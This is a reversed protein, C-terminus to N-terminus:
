ELYYICYMSYHHNSVPWLIQKSRPYQSDTRAADLTNSTSTLIHGAIVLGDANRQMAVGMGQRAAGPQCPRKESTITAPPWWTHTILTANAKVVWVGCVIACNRRQGMRRGAQAHLLLPPDTSGNRGRSAGLMSQRWCRVRMAGQFPRLAGVHHKYCPQM